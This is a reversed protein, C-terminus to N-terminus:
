FCLIFPIILNLLAFHMDLSLATCLFSLFNNLWFACPPISTCDNSVSNLLILGWRQICRVFAPPLHVQGPSLLLVTSMLVFLILVSIGHCIVQDSIIQFSRRQNTLSLNASSSSVLSTNRSMLSPISLAYPLPFFGDGPPWAASPLFLSQRFESCLLHIHIVNGCTKTQTRLPSLVDAAVPFYCLACLRQLSQLPFGPFFLRIKLATRIVKWSCHFVSSDRLLCLLFTVSCAGTYHLKMLFIQTWEMRDM